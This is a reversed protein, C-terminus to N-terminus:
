KIKLLGEYAELMKLAMSTSSWREAEPLTEAKKTAYLEKNTLMRRVAEGFEAEDPETLIGGKQESMVNKVGMRGVAVVPLGAAMAETVVLGQTETVSAFTFLDASAYCDRWDEGSLYGLFVVRDEL